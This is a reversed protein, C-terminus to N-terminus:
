VDPDARVPRAKLQNLRALGRLRRAGDQQAAVIDRVYQGGRQGGHFAAQRQALDRLRQRRQRRDLVPELEDRRRPITVM